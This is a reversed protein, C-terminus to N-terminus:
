ENEKRATNIMSIFKKFLREGLEIKGEGLQTLLALTNKERLLIMKRLMTELEDLGKGQPESSLRYLEPTFELEHGKGLPKWGQSVLELYKKGKFSKYEETEHWVINRHWPPIEGKASFHPSKYIREFRGTSYLVFITFYLKAPTSTSSYWPDYLGEAVLLFDYKKTNPYEESMIDKRREEDTPSYLVVPSQAIENGKPNPGYENEGPQSDMALLILLWISGIYPISGILIWWGSKGIDHLRRITVSFRPLMTVLSYLFFFIPFQFRGDSIGIIIVDIIFAAFLFIADFLTFMWFERRRARGNTVAYKKLATIYWNM